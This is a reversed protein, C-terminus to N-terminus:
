ASGGDGGDDPDNAADDLLVTRRTARWHDVLKSRAIRYLWTTFRADPRYHGASRVVAM